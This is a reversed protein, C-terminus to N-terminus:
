EIGRKGLSWIRPSRVGPRVEGSPVVWGGGWSVCPVTVRPDPVTGAEIWAATRLDYRLIGAAFGRHAEPAVGVQSGDDGGLVAFGGADAPAPSPAAARPVPLDAVRRWGAGPDYRWADALYERRVTGGEGAALAVGGVLWFAGDCSAAVALARGRGPCPEIEEWAPRAAALDIRRVTSEAGTSDPREVGGAVYLLDGVLAGSANALPRPLDPLPTTRLRGEAWELRFAGAQHGSADSGGVCVVGDRHTVSVGYGAARPLKGAEVWAADPHELVFVRDHWVKDGGEWPPRLPFNAGGAVVLAGGSVGAHAGAFGHDDPLPPLETWRVGLAVSGLVLLIAAAGRM